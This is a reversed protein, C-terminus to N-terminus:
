RAGGNREELIHIDTVHSLNVLYHGSETELPLFGEQSNVVDAVRREGEPTMACIVGELSEESGFDCCIRLRPLGDRMEFYLWEVKEPAHILIWRIAGKRILHLGRSEDLIPIFIERGALIDSVTEAGRHHEAFSSLFFFRESPNAPPVKLVVKVKEKPIRYNEM